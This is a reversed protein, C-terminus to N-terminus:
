AAARRARSAPKEVPRESGLLDISLKICDSRYTIDAVYIATDSADTVV